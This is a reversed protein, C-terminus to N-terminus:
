QVGFWEAEKRLRRYDPDLLVLTAALAAEVVAALLLGLFLYSVAAMALMGIAAIWRWRHNRAARRYERLFKETTRPSTFVSAFIASSYLTADYMSDRPNRRPRVKLICKRVFKPSSIAMGVGKAVATPPPELAAIARERSDHALFMIGTNVSKDQIYHLARGLSKAAWYDNGQLYARRARWAYDMVMGTHPHHHPARIIRGRGNKGMRFLADPLRDPEVSGDSLAKELEKPLQMERAIARAIAKHSKWKM